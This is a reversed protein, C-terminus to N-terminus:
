PFSSVTKGQSDVLHGPDGSNNWINAKGWILKNPGGHADTASHIELAGGPQIVTGSPFHFVQNGKESVLTWGTLDMATSGSNKLTVVEGQLDIHTIKVNGSPTSPAPTPTPAPNPTPSPSPNPSPNKPTTTSPTSTSPSSPGPPSSTGSSSSSNTSPSTSFSVTKGDSTAIITGSQDTRFIKIGASTLRTLVEKHPHGYTNDKGVPIVAYKPSVGQLFAKTTSTSSGHHGVKLVMSQLNGKALLEKEAENEADGTFLFSTGGYTVKLIASYDNYNDYETGVPGLFVGTIGPIDLKMGPLVQTIKLGKSVLAQLVDEYTKTTPTPSVKPMYFKEIPFNLIIQDMGGIHDAHPHTAIVAALKTIGQKKLYNVLFDGDTNNGADILIAEGQPGKLLISDAQGVDIFHVQLNGSPSSNTETNQEGSGLKPDLEERDSGLQNDGSTDGSDIGGTANDGPGIDGSDNGEPDNGGPIKSGQHTEQPNFVPSEPSAGDNPIIVILFYLTFIISLLTRPIKSFKKEKWLLFIGLPPLLFLALWIFWNKQHFKM